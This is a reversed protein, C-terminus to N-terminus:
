KSAQREERERKREERKREHEEHKEERERPTLKPAGSMGVEPPEEGAPKEPTQGRVAQREERLKERGARALERERHSQTHAESRAHGTTGSGWGEGSPAPPTAGSPTRSPTSGTPTTPAQGEPSGAPPGAAPSEGPSPEEGNSGRSEAPLLRASSPVRNEGARPAAGSGGERAVSAVALPEGSAGSTAAGAIQAPAEHSAHSSRMTGLVSMGVEATAGVALVGAALKAALAKMGGGALEAVAGTLASGIAAGEAYSGTSGFGVLQELVRYKLEITPMVPVLATLERQQHRVSEAYARCGECSRTHRRIRTRRLAPGRSTALQERIEACDAERAGRDSILNTRAQYVYAKVQESRVGLIGGIQAQTLGDVEALVLAARQREPLRRVDEFLGRVEERLQFTRVPDGTTAPEGNLEVTPRRKRLIDICENRAIAFLWPRVTVERGNSLLSRHAAAFAAQVADEADDRSGLMYVCFSLLGRVHREYLVEFATAGARGGRRVLTVLREDSALRLGVRSVPSIVDSGNAL